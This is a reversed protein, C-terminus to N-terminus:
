QAIPLRVLESSIARALQEVQSPGLRYSGYLTSGAAGSRSPGPHEAQLGHVTGALQIEPVSFEVEATINVPLSSFNAARVDSTALAQHLRRSTATTSAAQVHTVGVCSILLIRAAQLLLLLASTAAKVRGAM